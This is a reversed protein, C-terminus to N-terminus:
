KGWRKDHGVHWGACRPCYYARLTDDPECKTKVMRAAVLQAAAETGYRIKACTGPRDATVANMSRRIRAAERLQCRTPVRASM